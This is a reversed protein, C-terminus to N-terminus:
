ASKTSKSWSYVYMKCSGKKNCCGNHLTNDWQIVCVSLLLKLGFVLVVKIVMDECVDARTHKLSRHPKEQLRKLTQVM